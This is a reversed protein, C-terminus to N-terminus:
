WGRQLLVLRQVHVANRVRGCPGGLLSGLAAPCTSPLALLDGRNMVPGGVLLFFGAVIEFQHGPSAMPHYVEGPGEREDARYLRASVKKM